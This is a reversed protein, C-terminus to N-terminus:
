SVQDSNMKKNNSDYSKEDAQFRSAQNTLTGQPTNSIGQIKQAILHQIYANQQLTQDDPSAMSLALSANTAATIMSLFNPNKQYTNLFTYFKIFEETEEVKGTTPQTDGLTESQKNSTKHENNNIDSSNIAVSKDTITPTTPGSKNNDFAAKKSKKNTEGVENTAKSSSNTEVVSTPSEPIASTQKNHLALLASNLSVGPALM